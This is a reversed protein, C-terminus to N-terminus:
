WTTILRNQPLRRVPSKDMIIKQNKQLTMKQARKQQDFKTVWCHIQDTNLIKQGLNTQHELFFVVLFFLIEPGFIKLDLLLQHTLQKM